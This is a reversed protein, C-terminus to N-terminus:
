IARFRTPLRDGAGLPCRTHHRPRPTGLDELPHRSRERTIPKCGLWRRAPISQLSPARGSTPAPVDADESCWLSRALPPSARKPVLDGGPKRLARGRPASRGEGSRVARRGFPPPWPLPGRRLLPFHWSGPAEGRSERAEPGCPRAGCRVRPERSWPPFRAPGGAAPSGRPRTACPRRRRSAKAAAARPPFRNGPKLPFRPSRGANGDGGSGRVRCM